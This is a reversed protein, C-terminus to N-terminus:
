SQGPGRMQRIAARVSRWTEAEDTEGAEEHQKQRQAAEYEAKDGHANYLTRAYENVKSIDM